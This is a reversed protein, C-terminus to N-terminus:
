VGSSDQHGEILKAETELILLLVKADSQLSILSLQKPNLDSHLQVCREFTKAEDRMRWKSKSPQSLQIPDDPLHALSFEWDEHNQSIM